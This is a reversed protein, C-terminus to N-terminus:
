KGQLLILHFSQDVSTKFSSGDQVCVIQRGIVVCKQMEGEGEKEKVFSLIGVSNHKERLEDM